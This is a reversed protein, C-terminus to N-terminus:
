GGGGGGGGGRGRRGGPPPPTITAWSTLSLEMTVEAGDKRLGVLEIGSQLPGTRGSLVLERMAELHRDRYRQPMLATISQGVIEEADYGFLIRAGTNWGVIEGDSSAVVIADNASEVMTRFREESERLSEEASQREAVEERLAATRKEVMRELENNLNFLEDRAKALEQNQKTAAEYTSLLLSLTEQKKAYIVYEQGGYTIEVGSHRDSSRRGGSKSLNREILSLLDTEDYPKTIFHNAGAELAKIVDKSDSLSAVLIVPIGSLVKQSKIHRCLQYGDMGPMVINSLIIAPRARGIAALAELGNGAVTVQYGHKELMHQLQVAQTPSDEVILVTTTNRDGEEGIAM